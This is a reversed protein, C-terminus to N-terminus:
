LGVHGAEEVYPRNVDVRPSLAREGLLAHNSAANVDSHARRGCNGTRGHKVRLGIQGCQSRAKSTYAPDTFLTAIASDAAKYAV